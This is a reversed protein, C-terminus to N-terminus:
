KGDDADITNRRHDAKPTGIPFPEVNEQTVMAADNDVIKQLKSILQQALDIQYSALDAAMKEIYNPDEFIDNMEIMGTGPIHIAAIADGNAIHKLTERITRFQQWLNNLEDRNDDDFYM